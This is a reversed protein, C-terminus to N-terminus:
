PHQAHYARWEAERRNNEAKVELFELADVLDDVTYTGDFTEHQRWLGASVPQWVLPNLTPFPAPDWGM